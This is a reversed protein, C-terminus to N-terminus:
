MFDLQIDKMEAARDTCVGVCDMWFPDVGKFDDVTQFINMRTTRVQSPQRFLLDKYIDNNYSYRVYALLHPM